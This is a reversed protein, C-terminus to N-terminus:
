YNNNVKVFIQYSFKEQRSLAPAKLLWIKRASAFDIINFLVNFLLDVVNVIQNFNSAKVNSTWMCIHAFIAKRPKTMESWNQVLLIISTKGQVHFGILVIVHQNCNSQIVENM